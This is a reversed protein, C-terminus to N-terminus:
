FLATKKSKMFNSLITNIRRNSSTECAKHGIKNARIQNKEISYTNLLKFGRRVRRGEPDRPLNIICTM